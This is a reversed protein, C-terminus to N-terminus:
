HDEYRGQTDSVLDMQCAVEQRWEGMREPHVRQKDQGSMASAVSMKTIQRKKHIETSLPPDIDKAYITYHNSLVHCVTQVEWM